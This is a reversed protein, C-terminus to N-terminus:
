LSRSFFDDLSARISYQTALLHIMRKDNSAIKLLPEAVKPYAHVPAAARM